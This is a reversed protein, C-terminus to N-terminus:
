GFQVVFAGILVSSLVLVNLHTAWFGLRNSM